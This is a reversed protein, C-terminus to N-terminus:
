QQYQGSLEVKQEKSSFLGTVPLVDEKKISGSSFFMGSNMFLPAAVYAM